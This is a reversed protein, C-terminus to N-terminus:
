LTSAPAIIVTAAAASLFYDLSARIETSDVSSPQTCAAAVDGRHTLTVSRYIYFLHLAMALVPTEGGNPDRAAILTQRWRNPSWKAEADSVDFAAEVL